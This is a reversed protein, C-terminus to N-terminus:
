RRGENKWETIEDIAIPTFQKRNERLLAIAADLNDLATLPLRAVRAVLQTGKVIDVDNEVEALLESWHPAGEDRDIAIVM